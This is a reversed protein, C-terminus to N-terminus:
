RIAGAGDDMFAIAVSMGLDRHRLTAIRRGSQVAGKIRGLQEGYRDPLADLDAVTLALGFFQAPGDGAPESPGIVELIVEGLRFFTQRMPAGYTQADTDRVRRVDLGIAELAGVTRATDPTAVVLHDVQTAGNDHDVRGSSRSRETQAFQTPLGDVEESGPELRVDRLAWSRIRKGADRGALRIRVTGIQCIADDDVTFGADCWAAPPDGVVLEDIEPRAGTDGPRLDPM